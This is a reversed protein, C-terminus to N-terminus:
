RCILVFPVAPAVRRTAGLEDADADDDDAAVLDQEPQAATGV